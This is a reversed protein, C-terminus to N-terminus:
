KLHLAVVFVTCGIATSLIGYFFVYQAKRVETGLKTLPINARCLIKLAKKHNRSHVNLASKAIILNNANTVIMFLGVLAMLVGIAYPAISSAEM